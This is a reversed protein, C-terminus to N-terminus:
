HLGSGRRSPREADGLLGRDTGRSPRRLHDKQSRPYDGYREAIQLLRRLAYLYGLHYYARQPSHAQFQLQDSEAYPAEDALWRTIQAARRTMAQQLRLDIVTTDEWWPAGGMRCDSDHRLSKVQEHNWPPPITATSFQERDTSTKATTRAPVLRLRQRTAWTIFALPLDASAKPVRPPPRCTTLSDRWPSARARGSRYHSEAACVPSLHAVSKRLPLTARNTTAYPEPLRSPIQGRPRQERFLNRCTPARRRQRWCAQGMMKM